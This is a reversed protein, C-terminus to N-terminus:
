CVLVNLGVADGEVGNLGPRGIPLEEDEKVSKRLEPVAPALLNVEKSLPSEAYNNGILSAVIEGGLRRADGRIADFEDGSVDESEYFRQAAPLHVDDTVIPATNCRPPESVAIMPPYFFKGDEVTRM